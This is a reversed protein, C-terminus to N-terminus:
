VFYVLSYRVNFHAQNRILLINGKPKISLGINRIWYKSSSVKKQLYWLLKSISYLATTNLEKRSAKLFQSKFNSKTLKSSTWSQAQIVTFLGVKNQMASSTSFLTIVGVQSGAVHFGRDSLRFDLGEEAQRFDHKFVGLWMM